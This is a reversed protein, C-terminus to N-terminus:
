HFPYKHVIQVNRQQFKDLPLCFGASWVHVWDGIYVSIHVNHVNYGLPQGDHRMGSYSDEKAKAQKSDKTTVSSWIFSANLIGPVSVKSNCDM